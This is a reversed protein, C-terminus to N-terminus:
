SNQVQNVAKKMNEAIKSYQIDCLLKYLGDWSPPYNSTGGSNKWHEMLEGWCMTVDRFHQRDWGKLKNMTIGLMIGVRQWESSVKDLLSFTHENGDVDKWKMLLLNALSFPLATVFLSLSLFFLKVTNM